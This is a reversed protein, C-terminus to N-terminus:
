EKTSYVVIRKLDKKLIARSQLLTSKLLGSNLISFVIM